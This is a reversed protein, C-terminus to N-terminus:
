AQPNLALIAGAVLAALSVGLVIGFPSLLHALALLAALGGAGLLMGGLILRGAAQSATDQPAAHRMPDGRPPISAAGPNSPDFDAIFFKPAGREFGVKEQAIAQTRVVAARQEESMQEWMERSVPAYAAPYNLESKSKLGYVNGSEAQTLKRDLKAASKTHGYDPASYGPPAAGRRDTSARREPGNYGGQGTRRDASRREPAPPAYYVAGEAEPQADPPDPQFFASSPLAPPM